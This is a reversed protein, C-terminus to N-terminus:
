RSQCRPYVYSATTGTRIRQVPTACVPSLGSTRSGVAFHAAPFGADLPTLALAGTVQHVETKDVMHLYRITFGSGDDFRLLCQYSAPLTKGADFHLLDGGMGLNLLLRQAGTLRLVM